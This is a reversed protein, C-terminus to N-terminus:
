DKAAATLSGLKAEAERQADVCALPNPRRGCESWARQVGRRPFPISHVYHRGFLRTALQARALPDGTPAPPVEGRYLAALREVLARGIEPSSSVRDSTERWTRERLPSAPWRQKWYAHWTACEAPRPSKCVHHTIARLAAEDLLPASAALLGRPPPEAGGLSGPLRPM